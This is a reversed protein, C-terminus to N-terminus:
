AKQSKPPQLRSPLQIHFAWFERTPKGQRRRDQYVGRLSLTDQVTLEPLIELFKEAAKGRIAVPLWSVQEGHRQGLMFKFLVEDQQTKKNPVLGLYLDRGYFGHLTPYKQETRPAHEHPPQLGEKGMRSAFYVM